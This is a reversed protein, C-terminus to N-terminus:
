SSCGLRSYGLYSIAERELWHTHSCSSGRNSINFCRRFFTGKTFRWSQIVEFYRLRSSSDNSLDLTVAWGCMSACMETRRVRVSEWGCVCLCESVGGESVCVRVSVWGCVCAWESVWVCTNACECECFFFSSKDSKAYPGVACNLM